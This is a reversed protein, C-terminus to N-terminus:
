RASSESEIWLWSGKAVSVERFHLSLFDKPNECGDQHHGVWCDGIQELTGYGKKHRAATIMKIVAKSIGARLWNILAASMQNRYLSGCSVRGNLIGILIPLRGRNGMIPRTDQKNM